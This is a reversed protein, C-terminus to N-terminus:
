QVGERGVFHRETEKKAGKDLHLTRESSWSLPYRNPLTKRDGGGERRVRRGILEKVFSAVSTSESDQSPVCSCGGGM